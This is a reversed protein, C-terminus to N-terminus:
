CYKCKPPDFGGFGTPIGNSRVFGASLLKKVQRSSCEPCDPEPEDSARQLTEFRHDCSDCEYEYIPM